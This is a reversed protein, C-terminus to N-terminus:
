CDKMALGQLFHLPKKNPLSTTFDLTCSAIIKIKLTSPAPKAYFDLLFIFFTTSSAM